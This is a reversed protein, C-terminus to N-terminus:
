YCYPNNCYVFIDEADIIKLYKKQRRVCNKNSCMIITKNGKITHYHGKSAKFFSEEELLEKSKYLLEKYTYHVPCRIKKTYIIYTNDGIDIDM